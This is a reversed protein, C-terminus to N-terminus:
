ILGDSVWCVDCVDCMLLLFLFFYLFSFIDYIGGSGMVDDGAVERFASELDVWDAGDCRGPEEGVM